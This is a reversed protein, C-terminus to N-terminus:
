DDGNGGNSAPARGKPHLAYGLLLLAGLGAHLWGTARVARTEVFVQILYGTLTLPLFLWVM